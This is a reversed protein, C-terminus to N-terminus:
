FHQAKPNRMVLVVTYSNLLTNRLGSKLTAKRVGRFLGSLAGHRQLDSDGAKFLLVVVMVVVTQNKTPFPPIPKQLSNNPIIRIIYPSSYPDM